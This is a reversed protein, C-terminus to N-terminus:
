GLATRAIRRAEATLNDARRALFHELVGADVRGIERLATGVATQVFREPDAALIECLAVADGIDGARIITFSAVIATRRHWLSPSRALEFLVDRPKDLLYEGVVRPASRDIFDWTTIRDLRRMWLEYLEARGAASLRPRRAKFDLVSLAVMRLEYEDRDLLRDVEALEMATHARAIAFVTGMRVGIVTTTNDTMRKTTKAFEREDAAARLAEEVTEATLSLAALPQAILADAASDTM